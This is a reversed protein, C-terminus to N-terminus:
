HIFPIGVFTRKRYQVYADGFFKILQQEEHEIRDSFFKYCALAYAVTSLPNCLMIQTGVVYWFWGFYSPHRLYRYIGFDVLKHAEEREERVLHHFHSGATYMAVIRIILGIIVMVTGITTLYTNTKWSLPFIFLREVLYEVNALAFAYTYADSHNLLFSDFKLESPHFMAVYCFEWMHFLALACFYSAYNGWSNRALVSVYLTVGFVMGLGFGTVALKAPGRNNWVPHSFLTPTKNASSSSM